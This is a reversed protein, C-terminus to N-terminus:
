SNRYPVEDARAARRPLLHERQQHRCHRRQAHGHSRRVEHDVSRQRRPAQRFEVEAGPKGVLASCRDHHRRQKGAGVADVLQQALQLLVVEAICVVPEDERQQRIVCVRVVFARRSIVRQHPMRAQPHLLEVAAVTSTACPEAQEM